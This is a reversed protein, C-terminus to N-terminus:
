LVQLRDPLEGTIFRSRMEQSKIVSSEIDGADASLPSESCENRIKM